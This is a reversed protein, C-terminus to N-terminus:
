PALIHGIKETLAAGSLGFADMLEEYAASHIFQYSGDEATLNVSYFNSLDVARGTGPLDRGLKHRLYGNNQEAALIPKGEQLLRLMCASDYDPMDWVAAEINKQKLLVAAAIAEHVGRGSSVINVAAKETGTLRVAKEPQFTYDGGYLVASPSRMIRLYILGRNGEMIWKMIGVLQNPCSVDIVKIFPFADILLSDDNGMHTAGNTKTELNPATALFTLDLGHGESLWGEPSRIAEIREQYSVAIRRLVRLDFFPCFTSVWTNYGMAAYAEGICMMNSEAIGTNIGRNQDIGSIGAQLGSTSALDSDVSVVRPDRAFVKMCATIVDAAAANKEKTYVPLAQIECSIKKDRPPVKETKRATTKREIKGKKLDVAFNMKEARKILDSGLDSMGQDTLSHLFSLVEKERRHRRDLQPARETQYLEENLTIKHNNLKSSFAGFGKRTHCIIATPRGDRPSTLFNEVAGTVSDYSTGDTELVKWGFARIQGALNDMSLLLNEHNDLQGNNNDILVCLNDLKKHPAHMFVEWVIGEQLEGDGTLCFVNRGAGAQQTMALGQAAALGQGLPGTAVHVGPLIPGPHGNLISNISRSGSLMEEPFYGLDAYISAMAAVGHGKSLVFFDQDQHTPDEIDFHTRNTYFISILPVISSFAGGSHIGQDIAEVGQKLCSLRIDSDKLEYLKIQGASANEQETISKM